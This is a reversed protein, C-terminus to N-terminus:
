IKAFTPHETPKTQMSEQAQAVASCWLIKSEFTMCTWLIFADGGMVHHGWPGIFHLHPGISDVGLDVIITTGNVDFQEIM